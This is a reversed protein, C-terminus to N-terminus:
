FGEYQGDPNLIMLLPTTEVMELCPGPIYATLCSAEILLFVSENAEFGGRVLSDVRQCQKVMVNVHWTM